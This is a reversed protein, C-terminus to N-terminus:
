MFRKTGDEYMYTSIIDYNYLNLRLMGRQGIYTYFFFLNEDKTKLTNTSVKFITKKENSTFMSLM